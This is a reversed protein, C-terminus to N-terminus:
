LCHLRQWQLMQWSGGEKDWGRVEVCVQLCRVFGCVCLCCWGSGWWEGRVAQEASQLESKAQELKDASKPDGKAELSEVKSSLSAVRKQCALLHNHLRQLDKDKVQLSLCASASQNPPAKVTRLIIPEAPPTIPHHPFPAGQKNYASRPFVHLNQPHGWQM